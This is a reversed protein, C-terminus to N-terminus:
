GRQRRKRSVHRHHHKRMKLKAFGDQWDHSVIKTAKEPIPAAIQPVIAISRVTKKDPIEEGLKDTKALANVPTEIVDDAFAAQQKPPTAISIKLAALACIGVLFILALWIPGAM